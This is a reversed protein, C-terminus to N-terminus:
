SGSYVVKHKGGRQGRRTDGLEGATGGPWQEVHSCPHEIWRVGGEYLAQLFIGHLHTNAALGDGFKQTAVVSGPRPGKVGQGKAVQCLLGFVVSVFIGLVKQLLEADRGILFRYKHPLSLVWQRVAVKPLVRDVLHAATDNMRRGGCSPCIGRGKCSLAVVASHNCAPCHVRVAGKCLLGCDLYGLLEKKVFSPLGNGDGAHEAQALFTM